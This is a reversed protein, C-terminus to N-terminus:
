KLKDKKYKVIDGSDMSWKPRLALGLNKKETKSFDRDLAGGTPEGM